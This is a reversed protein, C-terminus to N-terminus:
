AVGSYIVFVVTLNRMRTESATRPTGNTGDDVPNGVISNTPTGATDPGADTSGSEVIGMKIAHSHGQMADLQLSGFVRGSDIGRGADYGRVGEGRFDPVNFTTSGNGVGFATGIAAFLTAYVTRSIATGDCILWKTPVTVKAFMRLEGVFLVGSVFDSVEAALATVDAVSAAGLNTLAVGATTAGTGGQAISLSTVSSSISPDINDAVYISVDSADYIAVKYQGSGYYIVPFRGYSDAVVPTSHPATLAADSYVQKSTLTGPSYFYAKAGAIPRGITDVIQQRPLTFHSSM